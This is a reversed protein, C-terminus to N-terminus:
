WAGDLVEGLQETVERTSAEDLKPNVVPSSAEGEASGRPLVM